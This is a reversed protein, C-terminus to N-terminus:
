SETKGNDKGNPSIPLFCPKSKKGRNFYEISVNGRRLDIEYFVGLLYGCAHEPSAKGDCPSVDGLSNKTLAILRERDKEKDAKSRTSKKMEIAVLNDQKEKIGRSHVILDCNIRITQEELGQITKAATKINGRNRNYEIDVYYGEYKEDQAILDHISLMLAGCLTRESVDIKFLSQNESLFNDNAQRFLKKMEGYTMM